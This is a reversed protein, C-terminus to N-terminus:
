MCGAWLSRMYDVWSMLQLSPHLQLQRSLLLSVSSQLNPSSPPPVRSRFPTYTRTIHGCSVASAENGTNIQPALCVFSIIVQQSIVLFDMLGYVWLGFVKAHSCTCIWVPLHGNKSSYPFLRFHCLNQLMKSARWQPFSTVEPFSLFDVPSISTSFMCVWNTTSKRTKQHFM